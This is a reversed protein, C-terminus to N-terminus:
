AEVASNKYAEFKELVADYTNGCIDPLKEGWAKTAQNFGEKFANLMDEMKDQDGGSLAKAFEFIRDSTQKVGWYGDESIDEQAQKITEADPKLNRFLDALTNAKGAQTTMLEEVLSRLQSTRQEADAKMQAVIAKRDITSPEYIVGKDDSTAANTNAADEKKATKTNYSSYTNVASTIGNLNM